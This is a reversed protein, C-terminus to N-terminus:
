RGATREGHWRRVIETSVGLECAIQQDSHGHQALTAARERLQQQDSKGTITKLIAQKQAQGFLRMRETRATM